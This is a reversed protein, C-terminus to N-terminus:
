YMLGMAVKAIEKITNEWQGLVAPNLPTDFFLIRIMEGSIIVKKREKKIMQATTRQRNRPSLNFINNYCLYAGTIVSKRM